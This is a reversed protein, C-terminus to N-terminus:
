QITFIFNTTAIPISAFTSDQGVITVTYTGAPSNSVGCGSVTLCITSLVVVFTAIRTKPRRPRLFGVFLMGACAVALTGQGAPHSEGASTLRHLTPLPKSSGASAPNDTICDWINTDLTLRITVAESGTITVAGDSNGNTNSFSYCLNQLAHYDSTNFTLNVTGRYGDAPTVTIISSGSGGQNVIVNTANLSFSGSGSGTDGAPTSEAALPVLSCALALLLRAARTAMNLTSNALNRQHIM